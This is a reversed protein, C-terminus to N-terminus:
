DDAGVVLSYTGKGCGVLRWDTREDPDDSERSVLVMVRESVGEGNLWARETVVLAFPLASTARLYERWEDSASHGVWRDIVSVDVARSAVYAMEVGSVEGSRHNIEFDIHYM